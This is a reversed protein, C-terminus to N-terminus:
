KYRQKDKPVYWELPDVGLKHVKVNEFRGDLFGFSPRAILFTYPQEEHLLRQFKHYLAYRKDPNLERRAEELLRDCEPNDFSIFNNGRGAIQSSHWIQYPDTEITGGWSLTAADFQRSNLREIFISWEVPDPIVQVGIKEGEDKMLKAIQEVTVSGAPYSYRFKFPIGNQDRVGDGDRDIWGAEDLMQKAKEPDYPWPKISPDNQKGYIYFPGTAVKARGKLLHEVIAKRDIMYTMALRVRRDAFFPTKLNWAIFAFGGSPEWYYLSKFQKKFEADKDMEDFQEATPERYDIDHSRLAQLAATPNTIFKFVLKNLKPKNGWYNENKRLIIQQGVDWREFVYPGSGVPDSRRMNFKQADKYQYIHKPLVEFSGVSEITKWYVEKFSFKVTRDDIKVVDRVNAYYNRIDAADVNSDVITEYTFVVDDATIPLGDSFYIGDRLKVTIELGDPSIDMKEALWPVLDIGEADLNYEFLREFVNRTIIARAGLDSEVSIPNLTRPEGSVQTILWDGEDGPYQETPLATSKAKEGTLPAAPRATVRIELLRNLHEYLRDAQVMSLVQLLIMVGLFLFLFFIVLGSRGNM